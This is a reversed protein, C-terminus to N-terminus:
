KGGYIAERMGLIDILAEGGRIRRAIEDEALSKKEAATVTAELEAAAIAILGDQDGLLIDGPNIVVGGVSIPVGVQGVRRNTGVRPNFGRAYIPLGLAQLERLDRVPGDIIVGALGKIHAALAMLEGFMAGRMDGEGDVVLLDGPRAEYLAKHVTIISGPYCKVTVAPGCLGAVVPRIAPDLVGFSNRVDSVNAVPIQRLRELLREMLWVGMM